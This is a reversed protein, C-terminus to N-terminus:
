IEDKMFLTMIKPDKVAQKLTHTKVIVSSQTTVQRQKITRQKVTLPCSDKKAIM